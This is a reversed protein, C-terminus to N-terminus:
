RGRRKLAAMISEEDSPRYVGAEVRRVEDLRKIWEVQESSPRGQKNTEPFIKLELFLLTRNQVVTLDLFGKATEGYKTVRRSDPVSYALWGYLEAAEVIRRQFDEEKERMILREWIQAIAPLLRLRLLLM